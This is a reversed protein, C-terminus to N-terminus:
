DKFLLTTREGAVSVTKETDPFCAHQARCTVHKLTKWHNPSITLESIIHTTNVSQRVTKSQASSGDMLWTVKAELVTCVTCSAKVESNAM